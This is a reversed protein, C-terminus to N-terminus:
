WSLPRSAASAAEGKSGDTEEKEKKKEHHGQPSLKANTAWRLEGREEIVRGWQNLAV